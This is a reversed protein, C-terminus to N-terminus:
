TGHEEEGDMEVDPVGGRGKGDQCLVDAVKAALTTYATDDQANLQLGRCIQGGKCCAEIVVSYTGENPQMGSAEM